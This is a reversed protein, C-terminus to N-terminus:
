PAPAFFREVKSAGRLAETEFMLVEHHDATLWLPLQALALPQAPDGPGGGPIVNWGAIRATPFAGGGGVGVYRRV